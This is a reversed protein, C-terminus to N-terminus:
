GCLGLLQCLSCISPAASAAFAATPVLLAGALALIKTGTM